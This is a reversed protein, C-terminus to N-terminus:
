EAARAPDSRNEASSNKIATVRERRGANTDCHLTQATLFDASHTILFHSATKEPLNLLKRWVCMAGSHPPTKTIIQLILHERFGIHIVSADGDIM